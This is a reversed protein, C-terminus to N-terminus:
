GPLAAVMKLQPSFSIRMVITSPDHVKPCDWTLAQEILVESVAMLLLLELLLAGEAPRLHERCLLVHWERAAALSM